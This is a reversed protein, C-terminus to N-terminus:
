HDIPVQRRVSVADGLFPRGRPKVLAAHGTIDLILVVGSAVVTSSSENPAAPTIRNIAHVQRHYNPTTVVFVGHVVM